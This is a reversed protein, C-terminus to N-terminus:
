VISTILGNVVTVTQGGSAVFSGTAGSIAAVQTNTYEKAAASVSQIQTDVYLENTFAQDAAASVSQIQTDVYLENTFAQDAAASVSQIQTDVYGKSPVEPDAKVYTTIANPSTSYTGNNQVMEILESGSLAGGVTMQSIKGAM